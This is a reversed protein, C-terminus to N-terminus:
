PAIGDVQEARKEPTFERSRELTFRNVAFLKKRNVLEALAEGFERIAQRM